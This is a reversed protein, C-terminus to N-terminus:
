LAEHLRGHAQGRGPTWGRHHFPGRGRFPRDAKRHLCAQGIPTHSGSVLVFVADLPEAVLRRWDTFRRDVGYDHGVQDLVPPSLDCIAAIEFRDSLERLYHLHMVQAVLGCGVIGVRLRNPAL